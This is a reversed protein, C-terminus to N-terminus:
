LYAKSPCHLRNLEKIVGEIFELVTIRIASINPETEIKSDKVILKIELQCATSKTHEVMIEELSKVRFLTTLEKFTNVSVQRLLAELRIIVM